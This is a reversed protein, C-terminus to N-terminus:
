INLKYISAKKLLIQDAGVAINDALIEFSMPLSLDFTTTVVDINEITTTGSVANKVQDSITWLQNTKDVRTIKIKVFRIDNDTNQVLYTYENSPDM